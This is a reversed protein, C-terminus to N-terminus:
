HEKQEYNFKEYALLTTNQNKAKRQTYEYLNINSNPMKLPFTYLPMIALGQYNGNQVTQNN